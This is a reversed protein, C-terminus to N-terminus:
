YDQVPWLKGDKKKIFFFPAAYLSKSLHIYGKAQQEQIFELLAKQEEQMLQYVKGPISSPVGPKLEIAHDWIRPEPFKHSVEESFISLHCHYKAPIKGNGMQSRMQEALKSAMMQKKSAPTPLSVQAVHISDTLHSIPHPLKRRRGPTVM